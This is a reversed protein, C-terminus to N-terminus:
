SGPTAPSTPAGLNGTHKHTSAKTAVTDNNWTIEKGVKLEGEKITLDGYHTWDSSRTFMKGEKNVTLITGKPHYVFIEPNDSNNSVGIVMGNKYYTLKVDPYSSSLGLGKSSFSLKFKGTLFQLIKKVPNLKKLSVDGLYYWNKYNNPKEAFVWILSDKEPINLTGFDNSGGFSSTFPRCWPYHDQKWGSMISEIYIKVRGEKIGTESDDNSIVKAIYLNEINM